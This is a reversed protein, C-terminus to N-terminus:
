KDKHAGSDKAHHTQVLIWGFGFWVLIFFGDREHIAKAQMSEDLYMQM